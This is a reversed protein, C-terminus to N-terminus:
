KNPQRGKKELILLFRDTAEETPEIGAKILQRKAEERTCIIGTNKNKNEM